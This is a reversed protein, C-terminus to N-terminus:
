SFTRMCIMNYAKAFSLQAPSLHMTCFLQHLAEWRSAGSELWTPMHRCLARSSRWTEQVAALVTPRSGDNRHVCLSGDAICCSTCCCPCDTQLLGRIKQVALTELWTFMHTQELIRRGAAHENVDLRGILSFLTSGNLLALEEIIRVQLIHAQLECFALALVAALAPQMGVIMDSHDSRILLWFKGICVNGAHLGHVGSSGSAHCHAARRPRCCRCKTCDWPV